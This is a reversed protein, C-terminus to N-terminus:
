EGKAALQANVKRLEDLIHALYYGIHYEQRGSPTSPDVTGIDGVPAIDVIQTPSVTNAAKTTTTPKVGGAWAVLAARSAFNGVNHDIGGATSYQHFVWPASVRPKGAAAGPDAIWLGSGAFNETDINKWFNLNCYLVDRYTGAKATVRAMFADRDAQTAGAAEWDCAIFDGSRLGAHALFYDAQASASGHHLFHYHGVVLGASRAHAVQAAHRPNVYNTSETAKVVVFDLGATSYTESQYSAVDIGHVTM